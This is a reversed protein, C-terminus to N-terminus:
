RFIAAGIGGLLGSFAVGLVILILLAPISAIAWKVMFLVMSWFPVSVDVVVVEQRKQPLFGTGSRAHYSAESKNAGAERPSCYPCEATPSPLSVGCKPCYTKTPSTM